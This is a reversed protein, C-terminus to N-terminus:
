DLAAITQTLAKESNRVLCDEPVEGAVVILALIEDHADIRHQLVLGTEEQCDVEIFPPPAFVSARKPFGATVQIDRGRQFTRAGAVARVDPNEEVLCDRGRQRPLEAGM